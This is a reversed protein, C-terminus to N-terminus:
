GHPVMFDNDVDYENDEPNEEDKEDDSGRLSEGPEEEEWEEDSDIEYNFWQQFCLFLNKEFLIQFSLTVLIISIRSELTFRRITSLLRFLHM